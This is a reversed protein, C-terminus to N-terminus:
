IQQIRNVCPYSFAIWHGFGGWIQGAGGTCCTSWVDQKLSYWQKWSLSQTSLVRPASDRREWCISWTSPALAKWIQGGKQTLSCLIPCGPPPSLCISPWHLHLACPIPDAKWNATERLGDGFAFPKCPQSPGANVSCLPWTELHHVYELKKIWKVSKTDMWAGAFWAYEQNLHEAQDEM